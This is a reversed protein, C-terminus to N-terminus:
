CVACVCAAYGTGPSDASRHKGLYVPTPHGLLWRRIREPLAPHYGLRIELQTRGAGVLYYGVHQTRQGDGVGEKAAQIAAEAVNREDQGTAKALEEVAKRYRDRTEFDMRAYVDAPDWRLVQDVQSVAEFFDNWDHAALGRLSLICNAIRRDEAVAQGTTAEALTSRSGGAAQLGTVEAAAQTLNELIGLRLMSPLAWLEGMTLDAIAQYTRIFHRVQDFVLYNNSYRIIERAVARVRPCREGSATEITALEQYFHRPMDERVQRLAEQVVHYNDLFWEGSSSLALQSDSAFRQHAKRLVKEQDRLQRPLSFRQGEGLGVHHRSAIATSLEEIEGPPASEAGATANAPKSSASPDNQV